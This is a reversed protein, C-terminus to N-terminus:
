KKGVRRPSSAKSIKAILADFLNREEGLGTSGITVAGFFTRKTSMSPAATWMNTAEDYM